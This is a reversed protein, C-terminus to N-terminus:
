DSSPNSYLLYEINKVWGDVMGTFAVVVIREGVSGVMWARKGGKRDGVDVGGVVVRATVWIVWFSRAAKRAEGFRGGGEFIVSM